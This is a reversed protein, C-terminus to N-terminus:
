TYFTRYKHEASFFAAVLILCVSCLPPVARLTLARYRVAQSMILPLVSVNAPRHFNLFGQYTEDVPNTVDQM